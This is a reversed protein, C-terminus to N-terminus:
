TLVSAVVIWIGGEAFAAVFDNDATLAQDAVNPETDPFAVIIDDDANGDSRVIYTGFGQADEASPMTITIDGDSQPVANCITQFPELTANATPTTIRHGFKTPVQSHFAAAEALGM